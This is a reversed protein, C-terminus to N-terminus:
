CDVFSFYYKVTKSNDGDPWASIEYNGPTYSAGYIVSGKDGYLFYPAKNERKSNIAGDPYMLSLNVQYTCDSTIAQISTSGSEAICIELYDENITATSMLKAAAADWVQFEKIKGVCVGPLTPAPTIVAVPAPTPATTYVPISAVPAPTAPIVPIPAPAICNRICSYGEQIFKSMDEPKECKVDCKGDSKLLSLFYKFNSDKEECINEKANCNESSGACSDCSYGEQLHKPMDEPKECKVECKGDSKSRYLHYKFKGDKEECINEKASCNGSYGGCDGGRFGGFLHKVINIGKNEVCKSECKGDKKARFLPYMFNGNKFGCTQTETPLPFGNFWFSGFQSQSKTQVLANPGVCDQNNGGLHGLACIIDPLWKGPSKIYVQMQATMAVLAPDASKEIIDIGTACDSQVLHWPAQETNSPNKCTPTWDCGGDEPDTVPARLKHVPCGVFDEFYDKNPLGFNRIIKPDSFNDLASHTGFLSMWVGVPMGRSIFWSNVGAADLTVGPLLDSPGCLPRRSNAGLSDSLYLYVDNTIYCADKRGFSFSNVVELLNNMQSAEINIELKTDDDDDTEIMYRVAALACNHLADAYSIGYKSMLSMSGYKTNIGPGSPYSESSQFAHLVRSATQDYNNNPHLREPKCTLVSADGGSTPLMLDPGTWSGTSLDINQKIYDAGDEGANIANDHFAMRLCMGPFRNNTVESSFDHLLSEEPNALGWEFIKV